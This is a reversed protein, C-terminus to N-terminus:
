RIASSIARELKLPEDTGIRHIEGNKLKIEVADFGSVNYIRMYPWFWIRIGWGYYWQNEVKKVSQIESLKFSKSYLGYGFKLKLNTDDISVNLTSFSSLIFIVLLIIIFALIDAGSRWTLYASFLILLVLSTIMLYGIQTHNYNM